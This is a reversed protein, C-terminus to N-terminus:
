NINECSHLCFKGIIDNRFLINEHGLSIIVHCSLILDASIIIKMHKKVRGSLVSSVFPM